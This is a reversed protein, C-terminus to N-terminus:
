VWRRLDYSLAESRLKRAKENGMLKYRNSSLQCRKILEEKLILERKSERKIQEFRQIKEVLDINSYIM